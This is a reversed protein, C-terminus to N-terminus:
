VRSMKEERTVRRSEELADALTTALPIETRWGRAALRSPNGALVRLDIARVRDPSQRIEVPCQLLSLLLEVVEALPTARGSAVNYVGAPVSRDLLLAYARCVDRVDTLDRRVSLDGVELTGGGAAELRALQGTWSGIAFREPQGPGVHQFPRAVVVDLGEARVARMCAVEAALKSAAYPSLPAPPDDESAPAASTDGYVEGTSVALVRAQPQERAVADLVNVTGVANVQWVAAGSAWSAAVSSAAALHVVAAPRTAAVAAAIEDPSTVDADVPVARDGLEHLLHRGVFGRAGTILVPGTPPTM